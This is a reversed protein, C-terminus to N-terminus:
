NQVARYTVWLECSCGAVDQPRPEYRVRLVGEFETSSLMQGELHVTVQDVVCPEPRRAAVLANSVSGDLMFGKGGTGGLFFGVLNMDEMLGYRMYLVDGSTRLEGDWLAENSALLGCDDRLVDVATFAYPGDNQTDLPACGGSLALLLASLAPLRFLRTAAVGRM